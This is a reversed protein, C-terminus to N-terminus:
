WGGKEDSDGLQRALAQRGRSLRAKVTGAPANTEEAIEAVSRGALHHLVIARRQEPPLRRLEAILALLDPTMGPIDQDSAARRHARVRNVSKRWASVAIRGAVQRVWAELKECQRVQSWRQWARSYAEAVADEADARSGTVAYMQGLLRPSSATYFVDFEQADRM